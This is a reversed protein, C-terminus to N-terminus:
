KQEQELGSYDLNEFSDDRDNNTDGNGNIFDTLLSLIPKGLHVATNEISKSIAPKNEERIKNTEERIKSCEAKSNERILACEANSKERALACEANAKERALAQESNAKERALACEGDFKEKALAREADITYMEKFLVESARLNEESYETGIPVKYSGLPTEFIAYLLEKSM